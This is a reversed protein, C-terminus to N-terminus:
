DFAYVCRCFIVGISYFLILYFLCYYCLFCCVVCLGRLCGSFLVLIGFFLGFCMIFSELFDVIM